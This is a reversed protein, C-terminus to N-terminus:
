TEHPGQVRLLALARPVRTRQAVPGDKERVELIHLCSLPESERGRWAATKTYDDVWLQGTDSGGKASRISTPSNSQPYKRVSFAEVPGRMQLAVSIKAVGGFTNRPKILVPAPYTTVEAPWKYDTSRSSVLNRGTWQSVAVVDVAAWSWSPARYENGQLPNGADSVGILPFGPQHNWLGAM